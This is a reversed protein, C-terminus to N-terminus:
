ASTVVFLGHNMMGSVGEMDEEALRMHRIEDVAELQFKQKGQM